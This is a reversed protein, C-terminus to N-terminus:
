EGCHVVQHQTLASICSFNKGCQMCKYAKKTTHSRPQQLLNSSRSFSKSCVTCQY